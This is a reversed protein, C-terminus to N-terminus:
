RELQMPKRDLDHIVRELDELVFDRWRRALTLRRSPSLKFYWFRESMETYGDRLRHKLRGLSETFISFGARQSSFEELRRPKATVKPTSELISVFEERYEALADVVQRRLNVLEQSERDNIELGLGSLDSRYHDAPVVLMLSTGWAGNAIAYSACAVGQRSLVVRHHPTRFGPFRRPQLPDFHVFNHLQSWDATQLIFWPANCVIESTSVLEAPRQTWPYDQGDFTLGDSGDSSKRLFARRLPRFGPSSGIGPIRAPDNLQQGDLYIPVQSPAAYWQLTRVIAGQRDPSGALTPTYRGMWTENGKLHSVTLRLGDSDLRAWNLRTKAKMGSTDDGAYIPPSLQGGTRFALVFALGVQRVLSQLAMSLAHVPNSNDLKGGRLVELLEAESPQCRPSFTFSTATRSQAVSLKSVKWLNAAQVVKLVWDYEGPLTFRALKQAARTASVTFQGQSVFQGAGQQESLFAKLDIGNM